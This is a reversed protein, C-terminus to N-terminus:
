NEDTEGKNRSCIECYTINMSRELDIDITDDVWEHQCHDDIYLRVDNLIKNFSPDYNQQEIDNYLDAYQLNELITRMEVLQIVKEKQLFISEDKSSMNNRNFELSSTHTQLTQLNLINPPYSNSPLIPECLFPSEDEEFKESDYLNDDNLFNAM